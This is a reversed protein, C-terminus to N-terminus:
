TSKIANEKLIICSQKKRASGTRDGDLTFTPATVPSSRMVKDQVAEPMLGDRDATFQLTFPVVNVWSSPPVAIMEVPSSTEVKVKRSTSGAM